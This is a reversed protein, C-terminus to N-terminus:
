NTATAAAAAAAAARSARLARKAPVAPSATNSAAVIDNPVGCSGDRHVPCLAQGAFACHRHRKPAAKPARLAVRRARPAGDVARLAECFAAMTKASLVHTRRYARSVLGRLRPLDGASWEAVVAVGPGGAAAAAAAAADDLRLRATWQSGTEDPRQRLEESALGRLQLRHRQLTPKARPVATSHAGRRESASITGAAAARKLDTHVAHMFHAEALADPCEEQARVSLFRQVWLSNARPAREHPV